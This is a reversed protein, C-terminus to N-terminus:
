FLKELKASATDHLKPFQGTSDRRKATQNTDSVCVKLDAHEETYSGYGMIVTIPTFEARSSFKFRILCFYYFSM